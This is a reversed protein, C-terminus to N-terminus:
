SGGVHLLLSVFGLQELLPRCVSYFETLEEEKFHNKWDGRIGKRYFSSISEEGRERGGSLTKFDSAAHCHARIEPTNDLGLFDLTKSFTEDFKELLEWYRLWHFQQPHKEGFAFADKNYRVWREGIFKLQEKPNKLEQNTREAHKLTSVAVDRGDRVIHIFRAEPFLLKLHPLFLAHAPTKDGVYRVTDPISRKSMMLAIMSRIFYIRESDAMPPYYHEGEYVERAVKNMQDNYIDMSQNFTHLLMNIFHGEGSCIAQPHADLAKQLWTTGSKPAGSIFFFQRKLTDRITNTTKDFWEMQQM